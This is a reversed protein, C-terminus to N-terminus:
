NAYIYEITEPEQGISVPLNNLFVHVDLVRVCSSFYLAVEVLQCADCGDRTGLTQRLFVLVLIRRRALPSLHHVLRSQTEELGLLHAIYNCSM